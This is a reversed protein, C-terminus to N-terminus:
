AAVNLSPRRHGERELRRAEQEALIAKASAVGALGIRRTRENLRFQVPVDTVTLLPLQEPTGPRHKTSM